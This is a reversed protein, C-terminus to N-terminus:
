QERRESKIVFAGLSKHCELILFSFFMPEERWGLPLLILDFLPIEQQQFLRIGGFSLARRNNWVIKAV